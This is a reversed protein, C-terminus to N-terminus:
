RLLRKRLSMGRLMPFDAADSCTHQGFTITCPRQMEDVGWDGAALSASRETDTFAAVEPLQLRLSDLRGKGEPILRPNRQITDPTAFEEFVWIGGFVSNEIHAGFPHGEFLDINGEDGAFRM